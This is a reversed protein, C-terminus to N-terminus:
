CFSRKTLPPKFNLTKDCFEVVDDGVLPQKSGESQGRSKVFSEYERDFRGKISGSM